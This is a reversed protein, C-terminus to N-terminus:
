KHKIFDLHTCTILHKCHVRCLSYSLLVVNTCIRLQTIPTCFWLFIMTKKGHKIGYSVRGGHGIYLCFGRDQCGIIGSVLPSGVWFDWSPGLFFFCLYSLSVWIVGSQRNTCERLKFNTLKNKFHNWWDFLLSRISDTKYIQNKGREEGGESM